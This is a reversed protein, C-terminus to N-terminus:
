RFTKASNWLRLFDYAAALGNTNQAASVMGIIAPTFSPNHATVIAFWLYGNMSWYFSVDTASAVRIGFYLYGSPIFTTSAALTSAFTGPASWSEIAATRATAGYGWVLARFAGSAPYTSPAVILGATEFNADANTVLRAIATFPAALAAQGRGRYFPSANTNNLLYYHGPVTTHADEAAVVGLATLGALSNTGFEYATDPAGFMDSVPDGAGAVPPVAWVRDGRLFKTNDAVGTGLQAVPVLIGSDLAAYGNAVGKEAKLQAIAGDVSLKVRMSGGADEVAKTIGSGAAIKPSLYGPTDGAIAAVLGTVGASGAATAGLGFAGGGATMVGSGSLADLARRLRIEKDLAVSNLNLDVGYDLGIQRIRYGVVRHAEVVGDGAPELGIWDGERYDIFPEYDGAAADGHHVALEIAESDLRALELSGDGARQLETADDSTRMALYGERRGVKVDTEIAPDAVEVVRGGAGEVLFRTRLGSDHGKTVVDGAFHKGKRLIVTAEFHRAYEVFARLRLEPTMFGELGLAVLQRWVDLLSTGIHFALEHTDAWPQSQSDLDAGFDYILAPLTGRAQAEDILTALIAGFSAGSFVRESSANSPIFLTLGIWNGTLAATSTLDGTDGLAPGVKYALEATRGAAGRDAAETQGGPPAISTNSAVAAITLLVGDVVDVGISPSKIAVGSGTTDSLGYVTDDASANLLRVVEVTAAVSSTFRWTWTAPEGALARRVYIAVGIASGNTAKRVQKWGPPATPNKTDGGVWTITAILLDGAVTGTPRTGAVSTAGAGNDASTAAGVAAAAPPWIAPYVEARELYALAGGGAATILEGAADSTSAVVDEPEEIFFGFRPIGGVRCKVYNGKVLHVAKPDSRQLRFTGSGVECFQPQFAGESANELLALQTAPNAGDYVEFEIPVGAAPTAELIELFIAESTRVVM